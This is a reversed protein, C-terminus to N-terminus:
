AFNEKFGVAHIIEWFGTAPFKGFLGGGTSVFKLRFYSCDVHANKQDIFSWVLM